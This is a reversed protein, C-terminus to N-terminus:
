MWERLQEFGIAILEPDAFAQAAGLRASIGMGQDRRAAAQQDNGDASSELMAYVVAKGSIRAIAECTDFFDVITEPGEGLRSKFAEIEPLRRIVEQCATEWDAVAPFIAALNWTQETPVTKREPMTLMESM